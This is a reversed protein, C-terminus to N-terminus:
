LQVKERAVLDLLEIKSGKSIILNINKLYFNKKSEYKFKKIKIAINKKFSFDKFNLSRSIIPKQHESYLKIFSPQLDLISRM